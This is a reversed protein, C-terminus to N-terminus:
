ILRREPAATARPGVDLIDDKELFLTTRLPSVPRDECVFCEIKTGTELRLRMYKQTGLVKTSLKIFVPGNPYSQLATFLKKDLQTYESFHVCDSVEVVIGHNKNLEVVVGHNENTGEIIHKPVVGEAPLNGLGAIVAGTTLLSKKLFDRRDM